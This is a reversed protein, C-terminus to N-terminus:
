GSPGRRGTAASGSGSGSFQRPIKMGFVGLDTLGLLYEDPIVGTREILRGDLTACYAALRDLFDRERIAAEPDVPQPRILALNYNGRYIGKAFSPRRDESIRSAEALARADQATVVREKVERVGDDGASRADQLDKTSM